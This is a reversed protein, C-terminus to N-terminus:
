RKTAVVVVHESEDADFAGADFDGATSNVAFGLDDLARSLEEPLLYNHVLTEQFTEGGSVFEYPQSIRQRETDITPDREYCSWDRGLEDTVRVLMDDDGGAADGPEDDQLYLLANYM